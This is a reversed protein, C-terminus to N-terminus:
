FKIVKCRSFIVDRFKQFLILPITQRCRNEMRGVLKWGLFSRSSIKKDQYPSGGCPYLLCFLNAFSPLFRFKPRDFKKSRVHCENTSPSKASNGRIIWKEKVKGEIVGKRGPTLNFPDYSFGLM